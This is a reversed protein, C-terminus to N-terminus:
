SWCGGCVLGPAEDAATAVTTVPAAPATAADAPAASLGIGFLAILGFLVFRLTGPM